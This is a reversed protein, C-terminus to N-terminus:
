RNIKEPLLSPLLEGVIATAAWFAFVLGFVVGEDFQFTRTWIGATTVFLIAICLWVCWFVRARTTTPWCLSRLALALLAAAALFTVPRTSSGAGEWLGQVKLSWVGLVAGFIVDEFARGGPGM